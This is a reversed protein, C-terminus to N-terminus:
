SNWTVCEVCADPVDPDCLIEPGDEHSALDYFLYHYNVQREPVFESSCVRDIYEKLVVERDKRLMKVQDGSVHYKGNPNYRIWYIPLELSTESGNAMLAARIDAMRSFECKLNYWYHQDEDVELILIANVSEIIRFDLRSFHRATDELCSNQSAAIHDELDVTYGWKKMMNNVRSEQKKRRVQGEKTHTNMHLRLATKEHSAYQCWEVPCVHKKKDSHRNVHRRLNKKNTFKACCDELPCHLSRETSHTDRHTTVSSLSISTYECGPFDCSFPRSGEHMRKHIKLSGLQTFKSECEPFDCQYPREGSHSRKHIRLSGSQTCAYECGPFDCVFPKSGDHTRKHSSLSARHSCTYDCGDHDCSFPREGTHKRNHSTIGDKRFCFFDCGEHKCTYKKVLRGNKRPEEITEPASRKAM